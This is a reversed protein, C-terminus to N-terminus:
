IKREYHKEFKDINMKISPITDCRWCQMEPVTELALDYMSKTKTGINWVGNKNDKVMEIIQKSIVDVYDFTGIVNSYAKEYPFPTPKFSCRILLYNDGWLQMYGDSLLKTYSYWTEQHVPVDTEKNESTSNAYVYDTSIHILKINKERCYHYLTVVFKFNINWHNEREYSYTDTNGICNIITTVDPPILTSISKIDNADIGDKKNSLYDWGTQRVIESGLLGDGLVLIKM